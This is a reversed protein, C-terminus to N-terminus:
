IRRYASSETNCRPVALRKPAVIGGLRDPGLGTPRELRHTGASLIRNLTVFADADANVDATRADQVFEVRELGAPFQSVAPDYASVTVERDVLAQASAPGQFRRPTHVPLRSSVVVTTADPLMPVLTEGQEGIWRTDARDEDDVPTDSAVRM